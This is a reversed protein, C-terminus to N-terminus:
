TSSPNYHKTVFLRSELWFTAAVAVKQLYMYVPSAEFEIYRYEEITKQENHYLEHLYKAIFGGFVMALGAGILMEDHRNNRYSYFGYKNLWLISEDRIRRGAILQELVIAGKQVTQDRRHTAEYKPLRRIIRM